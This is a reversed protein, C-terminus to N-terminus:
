LKTVDNILSNLLFRPPDSDWNCSVKTSFCERALVHAVENAERPCHQFTVSGILSALDVCDAFIASAEGWWVEGGSCAQIVETSDSEIQINHCGLRNALALGERVALAESAYASAVNPLFITSAAVFRGNSDRAVAGVSGAHNDSQFSGDVNVKIQTHSPKEWLPRPGNVKAMAKAVNATISLISMKCQSIPPVTEDHTRRRRIWWLYWCAVAITEKQGMNDFGPLMIDKERMLHELVASGSRDILSADVIVNELGLDRWIQQASGCHFLLHLIDEPANNCVPCQGSYM